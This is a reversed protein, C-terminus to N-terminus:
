RETALDADIKRLLAAREEDIDESLRAAFVPLRWARLMEGDLARLRRYANLYARAFLQRVGAILVRQVRPYSKPVDSGTLLFLTRAVDAEPPGAKASMWDIVKPGAASMLVNGPHMDGHCIRDGDPLAALRELVAAARDAGLINSSREIAFGWGEKLTPLGAGPADHMRAHLAALDNAYRRVFWPRRTVADLM